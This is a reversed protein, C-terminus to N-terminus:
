KQVLKDIRGNLGMGEFFNGFNVQLVWFFIRYLTKFDDQFDEDFIVHKGNKRVRSVVKKILNTVEEPDSTEFVKTIGNIIAKGVETEDDGANEIVEIINSLSPGIMKALTFKLPLAESPPLQFVLYTDEDIVLTEQRCAM